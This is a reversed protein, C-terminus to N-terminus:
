SEKSQERLQRVMSGVRVEYRRRTELPEPLIYNLQWYFNYPEVRLLVQAPGRAPIIRYEFARGRLHMHPFLSLLEADNPLTGRVLVPYNAEGPPIRFTSNGM